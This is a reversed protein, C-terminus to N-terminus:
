VAEEKERKKARAQRANDARTQEDHALLCTPGCYILRLINRQYIAGCFFCRAINPFTRM